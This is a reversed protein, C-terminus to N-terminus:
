KLRDWNEMMVRYPAPDEKDYYYTVAADKFDALWQAPTIKGTDVRKGYDIPEVMAMFGEPIDQRIGCDDRDSLMAEGWQVPLNMGAVTSAWSWTSVRFNIESFYLQDDPGILFEVSFVGDFGIDEFMEQLSRYLGADNLNRVTMYPSYYGPILYNYNTAISIFLRKGGGTCFGDLCLENKKEIWKQLLVKDAKIHQYAQKLEEASHCIFVDSKWGGVNPSISKTIVPFEIDEPVEGRECVTTQLTRLGHRRACALINFKDMYANIRGQEGANFLIFKDKLEDYHLDLYGITRDDSCYVIPLAGSNACSGYKELLVRYGEEVTEVFVVEAVYKSSSVVKAKGKVAILDPRIGERGLSRVIGLGTYHEIGFVICKHESLM